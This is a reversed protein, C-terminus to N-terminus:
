VYATYLFYVKVYIYFADNEPCFFLFMLSMIREGVICLVDYM